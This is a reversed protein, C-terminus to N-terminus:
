IMDYIIAYIPYTYILPSHSSYSPEFSKKWTTLCLTIAVIGKRPVRCHRRNIVKRTVRGLRDILRM